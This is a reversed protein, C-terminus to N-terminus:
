PILLSSPDTHTGFGEGPPCFCYCSGTSNRKKDGNAAVMRHRHEDVVDGTGAGGAASTSQEEQVIGAAVDAAYQAALTRNSKVAPQWAKSMLTVTYGEDYEGEGCLGASLDACLTLLLVLLLLALVLLVVLVLVLVLVLLLV